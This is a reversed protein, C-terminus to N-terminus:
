GLEFDWFSLTQGASCFSVNSFYGPRIKGFARSSFVSSLWTWSSLCLTKVRLYALAWHFLEFAPCAWCLIMLKLGFYFFSPAQLGSIQALELLELSQSLTLWLKWCTHEFNFSASWFNLRTLIKKEFFEFFSSVSNAQNFKKEFINRRNFFEKKPYFHWFQKKRISGFGFCTQESFTAPIPIGDIKILIKIAGIFSIHFRRRLNQSM